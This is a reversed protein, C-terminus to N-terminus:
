GGGLDWLPERKNEGGTLSGGTSLRCLATAAEGGASHGDWPLCEAHLLISIHVNSHLLHWVLSGPTWTPLSVWGTLSISFLLFSQLQLVSSM